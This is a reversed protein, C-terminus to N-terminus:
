VASETHYLYLRGKTEAMSVSRHCGAKSLRAPARGPPLDALQSSRSFPARTWGIGAGPSISHSPYITSEPLPMEM